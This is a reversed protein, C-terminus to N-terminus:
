NCIDVSRFLVLIRLPFRFHKVLRSRRHAHALAQAQTPTLTRTPPATHTLPLYSPPQNKPETRWKGNSQAPQSVAEKESM